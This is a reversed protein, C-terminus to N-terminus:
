NGTESTSTASGSKIEGVIHLARMISQMDHRAAVLSQHAAQIKSQAQKLADKNAKFKAQDGNDPVLVAAISQAEQTKAKADAIKATMDALATQSAATDKGEAQAATIAAQLKVGVSTMTDAITAIRDAAIMIHSQPIILAFIRYSEAILKADARLATIDTEGAIKTKLSNLADIQANIESVIMTKQSDTLRKMLQIRDALTKLAKTRRDIEQNSRSVIREMQKAQITNKVTGATISANPAALVPAIALLSFVLGSLILSTTNKIIRM